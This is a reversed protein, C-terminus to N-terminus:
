GAMADGRRRAAALASATASTRAGGSGCTRSPPQPVMLFRCRRLNPHGRPPTPYRSCRSPVHIAQRRGKIPHGLARPHGQPQMQRVGLLDLIAEASHGPARGRHGMGGHEKM